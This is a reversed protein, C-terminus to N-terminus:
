LPMTVRQTVSRLTVGMSDEICVLTTRYRKTLQRRLASVIQQDPSAGAFRALQAILAQVIKNADKAPPSAVAPRNRPSRPTQSNRAMISTGFNSLNM